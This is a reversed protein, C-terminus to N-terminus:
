IIKRPLSSVTRKWVYLQSFDTKKLASTCTNAFIHAFVHCLPAYIGGGRGFLTLMYPIIFIFAICNAIKTDTTILHIDLDGLAATDSIHINGWFFDLVGPVTSNKGMLSLNM